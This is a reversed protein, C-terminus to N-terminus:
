GNTTGDILERLIDAHGAHRATEELMHAAILRLPDLGAEGPNERRALTGLDGTARLIEDSRACAARYAAVVERRTRGAPVDWSDVSAPDEGLFVRQFWHEEAWTLHQLMGLLNTGSPVPARRLDDDGLGETAAVVADRNKALYRLLVGREDFQRGVV